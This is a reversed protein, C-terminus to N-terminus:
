AGYAQASRFSDFRALAAERIRREVNRLTLRSRIASNPFVFFLVDEAVSANIIKLCNGEADRKRCPDPLDAQRLNEHVRISAEGILKYPGLDGCIAPSIKNGFIVVALDGIALAPLFPQNSRPRSQPLVIYAISASPLEGGDAFHFSTDNQGSAPDLQRGNPLGPGAPPGDADIAMKASWFVPGGDPFQLLAKCKNPDNRGAPSADFADFRAKAELACDVALSFQVGRLQSLSAAPPVFVM